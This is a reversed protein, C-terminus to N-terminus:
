GGSLRVINCKQLAYRQGPGFSVRTYPPVSLTEDNMIDIPDFFYDHYYFNHLKNMLMPLMWSGFYMVGQIRYDHRKLNRANLWALHLRMKLARDEELNRPHLFRMRDRLAAPAGSLTNDM